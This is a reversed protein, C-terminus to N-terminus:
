EAKRFRLRWWSQTDKLPEEVATNTLASLDTLTPWLPERVPDDDLLTRAFLRPALAVQLASVSDSSNLAAYSPVLVSHRAMRTAEEAAAGQRAAAQFVSWAATALVVIMAASSYLLAEDGNPRLVRLVLTGVGLVILCAFTGAAAIRLRRAGAFLRYADSEYASALDVWPRADRIMADHRARSQTADPALLIPLALAEAARRLHRWEIDTTRPRSALLEAFEVFDLVASVTNLQCARSVVAGPLRGLHRLKLAIVDIEAKLAELTAAAAGDLQEDVAELRAALELWREPAVDPDVM